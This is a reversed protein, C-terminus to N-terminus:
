EAVNMTVDVIVSPGESQVRQIEDQSLITGAQIIQEGNQNTIDKVVKKGELLELQKKQLDNLQESAQEEEQNLVSPVEQLVPATPEEEETIYYNEINENVIIMKEGYTVVADRHVMETHDKMDLHIAEINGNDDNVYYEDIQGLLQGKRTMVRTGIIKVKKNMLNNAIPIENLDIIASENDVTVAYEGVGVVKKFPIAKVSVEWEEHQIVLFDVTGKEPNIILSKVTGMEEGDTINIIPLEVIERSKKM